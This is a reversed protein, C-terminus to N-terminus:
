LNEREVAESETNNQEEPERQMTDVHSDAEQLMQAKNDNDSIGEIDNGDGCAPPGIVVIDFEGDNPVDSNADILRTRLRAKSLFLYKM